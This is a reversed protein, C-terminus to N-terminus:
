LMNRIDDIINLGSAGYRISGSFTNSKYALLFKINYNHDTINMSQDDLFNRMEEVSRARFSNKHANYFIDGFTIAKKDLLLAEFGVTSTLTIVFDIYLLIEKTNEEPALLFVNPLNKIRNYDQKSYRGFNSVHEKVLLIEDSYLNFAIKEIL